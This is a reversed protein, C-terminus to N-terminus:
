DSDAGFRERYAALDDETIKTFLVPPVTFPTGAPIADLARAQGPTVWRQAPGAPSDEPLTFM